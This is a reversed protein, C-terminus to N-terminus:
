KDTYQDPNNLFNEIHKAKKKDEYIQSFLKDLFAAVFLVMLTILITKM